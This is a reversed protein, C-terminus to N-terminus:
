RFFINHNRSSPDIIAKPKCLSISRYLFPNQKKSPASGKKKVRSTRTGNKIGSHPRSGEFIRAANSRVQGCISMRHVDSCLPVAGGLCRDGFSLGDSFICGLSPKPLCFGKCTGASKEHAPSVRCRNRASLQFYGNESGLGDHPHIKTPPHSFPRAFALTPTRRHASVLPFGGSVSSGVAFDRAM